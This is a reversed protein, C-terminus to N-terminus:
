KITVEMLADKILRQGELNPQNFGNIFLRSRQNEVVPFKAFADVFVCDTKFAVRKNILVYDDIEVEQLNIDTPRQDDPCNKPIHPVPSILVVEIGHSKLIEVVVTLLVEYAPLISKGLWADTNGVMILAIDPKYNIADRALYLILDLVGSGSVANNALSLNYQNGAGLEQAWIYHFTERFNISWDPQLGLTINDGMAVVKINEGPKKEQIAKLNLKKTKGDTNVDDTLPILVENIADIDNASRLACYAAFALAFVAAYKVEPEAKGEIIAVAEKKLIGNAIGLWKAPDLPNNLRIEEIQEKLVNPVHELVNTIRDLVNNIKDLVFEDKNLEAAMQYCSLAHPFFRMELAFDGAKTWEEYSFQKSDKKLSLFMIETLKEDKMM